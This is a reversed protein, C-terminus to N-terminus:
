NVSGVASQTKIAASILQSIIDYGTANPHIRDPSIFRAVPDPIARMADDTDVLTVNKNLSYSDYWARIAANRQNTVTSYQDGRPPLTSVYIQASRNKQLLQGVIRDVNKATDAPIYGGDNAGILLLYADSIPVVSLRALIDATNDGGHGEHGFGYSDTRSGTFRYGPLYAAMLCRFAQGDGFWTMSDGITTLSRAGSQPRPANVSEILYRGPLVPSRGDAWQVAYFATRGSSGWDFWEGNFRFYWANGSQDTIRYLTNYNFSTSSVEQPNAPVINGVEAAFWIYTSSIEELSVYGFTYLSKAPLSVKLTCQQAAVCSLNVLLFLIGLIFKMSFESKFTCWIFAM